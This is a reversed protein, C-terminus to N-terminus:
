PELRKPHKLLDSRPSQDLWKEIHKLTDKLDIQPCQIKLYVLSDWIQRAQNFTLERKGVRGNADHTAYRFVFDEWFVPDQVFNKDALARVTRCYEDTSFKLINREIKVYIYHDFLRDGGLNRRVLVELTRVLDRNSMFPVHMPLM